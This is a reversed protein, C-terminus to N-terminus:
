SIALSTKSCNDFKKLYFASFNLAKGKDKLMADM